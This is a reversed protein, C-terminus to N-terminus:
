YLELLLFSPQTDSQNCLNVPKQSGSEGGYISTVGTQLIALVIVTTHNDMATHVPSPASHSSALLSSHESSCGVCDSAVSRERAALVLCELM